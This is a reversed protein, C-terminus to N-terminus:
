NMKMVNDPIMNIIVVEKLKSFNLCSGKFRVSQNKGWLNYLLPVAKALFNSKEYIM